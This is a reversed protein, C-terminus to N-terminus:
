MQIVPNRYMYLSFALIFYLVIIFIPTATLDHILSSSLLSLNVLVFCAIINQLHSLRSYTVSTDIETKM